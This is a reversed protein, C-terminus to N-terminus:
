GLLLHDFKIPPLESEKNEDLYKEISDLSLPGLKRWKVRLQDSVSYGTNSKKKPEENLLNRM